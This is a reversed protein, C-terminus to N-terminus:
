GHCAVGAVSRVGFTPTSEHLDDAADSKDRKPAVAARFVVPLVPAARMWQGQDGEETGGRSKSRRRSGPLRQRGAAAAQFAPSTQLSSPISPLPPLSPLSLQHLSQETAVGEVSDRASNEGISSTAMTSRQSYGSTDETEKLQAPKAIAPSASVLKQYRPPEDAEVLEEEAFSGCERCGLAVAWDSLLSFMCIM